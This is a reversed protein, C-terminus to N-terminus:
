SGKDNSEKSSCISLKKDLPVLARGEENQVTLVMLSMSVLM